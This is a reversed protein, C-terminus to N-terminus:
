PNSDRIRSWADTVVTRTRRISCSYLSHYAVRSREIITYYSNCQSYLKIPISALPHPLQNHGLKKFLELRKMGELKKSTRFVSLHYLSNLRATLTLSLVVPKCGTLMPKFGIHDVLNQLLASKHRKDSHKNLANASVVFQKDSLYAFLRAIL